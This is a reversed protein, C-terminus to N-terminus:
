LKARHNGSSKTAGMRSIQLIATLAAKPGRDICGRRTQDLCHMLDSTFFSSCPESTEQGILASCGRDFVAQDGSADREGDDCDHISNTGAQFARKARDASRQGVLWNWPRLRGEWLALKSIKM